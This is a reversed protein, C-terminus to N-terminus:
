CANRGGGHLRDLCKDTRFHPRDLFTCAAELAAARRCSVQDDCIAWLNWWPVAPASGVSLQVTEALPSHAQWVTATETYVFHALLVGTKSHYLRWPHTQLSVSPLHQHRHACSSHTQQKCNRTFGAWHLCSPALSCASLMVSLPAQTRMQLCPCATAPWLCPSYEHRLWGECLWLRCLSAASLPAARPLCPQPHQKPPTCEWDVVDTDGMLPLAARLAPAAHLAPAREAICVPGLAM